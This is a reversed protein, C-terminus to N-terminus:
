RRVFFFLFSLLFSGGSTLVVDNRTTGSARSRGDNTAASSRAAGVSSSSDSCSIVLSIGTQHGAPHRQRGADFGSEAAVDAASAPAFGIPARGDSAIGAASFTVGGKSGTGDIRYM